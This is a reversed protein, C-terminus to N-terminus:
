IKDITISLDDMLPFLEKKLKLIKLSPKEVKKVFSPSLRWKSRDETVISITKQNTRTVVSHIDCGDKQFSVIDGIKLASIRELAEMDMVLKLRERIKEHLFLLEDKTFRSLDIDM